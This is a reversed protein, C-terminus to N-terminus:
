KVICIIGGMILEENDYDIGCQVALKEKQFSM